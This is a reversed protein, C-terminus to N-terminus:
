KKIKLIIENNEKDLEAFNNEVVMKVESVSFKSVFINKMEVSLGYGINLKELNFEKVRDEDAYILIKGEEAIKLGNNKVSLNIDLYRGSISASVNEFSLDPLSAVSYLTNISEPIDDGLTQRCNTINYMINNKNSSHEFGLVHLLEHMAINPFGCNSERILLIKGHLIVNFLSTGIIESPGGEGAIFLGGESRSKSDCTVSIEENSDASYFDLITKEALISFASEMENKKQLPCDYIKYSISPYPYRMNPYFQMKESSLNGISFNSNEDFVYFEFKGFPAFLYITLLIVVALVFFLSLLLKVKSNGEEEYEM